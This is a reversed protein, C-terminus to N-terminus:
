LIVKFNESMFSYIFPNLFSHAMALWHSLFYFTIYTLYSHANSVSPSYFWLVIVFLQLPLWCVIFVIVITILM